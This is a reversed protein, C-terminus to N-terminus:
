IYNEKIKNLYEDSLKLTNLYFMRLILLSIFISSIIFLEMSSYLLLFLLSPIIGILLSYILSKRFDSYFSVSIGKNNEKLVLKSNILINVKHSKIRIPVKLNIKNMFEFSVSESSLKNWNKFFIDKTINEILIESLKIKM